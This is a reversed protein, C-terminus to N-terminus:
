SIQWVDGWVFRTSKGTSIYGAIEATFRTGKLGELWLWQGGPNAEPSVYGGAPTVNLDIAGCLLRLRSM